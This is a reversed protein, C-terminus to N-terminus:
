KGLGIQNMYTQNDWFLYEKDMVGNTWHGVTCMNISFKKGTPQIFKDNGIAMPKSFTGTMVGIVSTWEGSGFMVPHEHIETDPAFSFMFKLDEIHKALGTTFHGDPWYVIIDKSHSEHFRLWQQETFIKFDLTDFKKLYSAILAEGDKYKKLESLLADSKTQAFLASSIVSLAFLLIIKKM